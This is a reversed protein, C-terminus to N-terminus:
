QARMRRQNLRQETWTAWRCNGPEYNGNPDKRDLTLGLPKEGMDAFFNSFDSWRECVTIGRGGYYRYSGQTPTTCREWMSAWCNYTPTGYMGHKTGTKRGISAAVEKQFCGCSVVAGSKFAQQKVRKETGCDCRVVWFRHAATREESERLITLRGFRQGTFDQPKPGRRMMEGQFTPKLMDSM